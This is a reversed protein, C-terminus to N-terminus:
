EFSRIVCDFGAGNFAPGADGTLRSHFIWPFVLELPIGQEDPHEEQFDIVRKMIMRFQARTFSFNPGFAELDLEQEAFWRSAAIMGALNGPLQQINRPLEGAYERSLRKRASDAAPHFHHGIYPYRIGPLGVAVNLIAPAVRLEGQRMVGYLCHQVIQLKLLRTDTLLSHDLLLRHEHSDRILQHRLAPLRPHLPCYGSDDLAQIMLQQLIEAVQVLNGGSGTNEDVIHTRFLSESLYRRLYNSSNEADELLRSKREADKFKPTMLATLIDHIDEPLRSGPQDIVRGV